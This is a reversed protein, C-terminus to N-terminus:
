SQSLPDIKSNPFVFYRNLLFLIGAVVFIATAQVMQHPLKLKEWLIYLMLLNVGYGIVHAILYRVLAHTNKGQYAFSYKSHGFYATVVGVPYLLTIAVMPDLWYFTLLLYILYGLLNNLLGVLGYRIVQRLAPFKSMSTKM